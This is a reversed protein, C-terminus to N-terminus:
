SPRDELCQAGAECQECQTSPTAPEEPLTAETLREAFRQLAAQTTYFRGGIRVAELRIGRLGTAVWRFLTSFNVRRGRRGAPLLRAAEDLTILDKSIDIM